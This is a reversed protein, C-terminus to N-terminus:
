KEWEFASFMEFKDKIQQITFGNKEMITKMYEINPEAAPGRCGICSNGNSPCRAGCGARTLPGMCIKGIEYLCINQKERCRVCIPHKSYRYKKRLVISQIIAEVEPKYVPCGYIYFDVKVVEDIAMVKDNTEIPHNGYVEKKVWDINNFLNKLKNIGGFSACTGFAVLIKAKERIKKLREIEDKRTISGEIFAIDYNDARESMIERFNSVEVLSLFDILNNENNAIQLQCGECCSFEFFAIKPKTLEVGLYQM